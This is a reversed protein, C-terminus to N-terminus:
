VRIVDSSVKTPKCTFLTPNSRVEWEKPHGTRNRIFHLNHCSMDVYDTVLHDTNESKM